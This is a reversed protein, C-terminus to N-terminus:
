EFFASHLRTMAGTVDADRLVFTFTRRSSAQSVLRLPIRDLAAIARAFVGPDDHLRDGVVSVIAMNPETAVEAFANLERVIDDLKRPDDVTVSVSVESTTVVDVATKFREFVEFLRRLFGHAMFMRTSTIDIVTVDRKCALAALHGDRRTDSTILTGPNAPQRSNLIRVPINKSVAPLITAPHLVKAGFYALESAEAFSLQPVVHPSSVVRPDATLMGDVDTWIQIEGVDLCAGFIAASYDSGGRGLTTTVGDKTAAIFGGLIPITDRALIPALVATARLCTADMIPAAVTHEVDTVLIDRADVWVAPLDQEQFAAAVIRSSALEGTAVVLDHEAPVVRRATAMTAVREVLEAFQATLTNSLEECRQGTTLMRAITVHRQLLESILATSKEGDGNRALDAARILGDTVKSLASVVVVPPRSGKTQSAWQKRVINVVRTMADSDAVSTGGFKMVVTDARPHVSRDGVSM